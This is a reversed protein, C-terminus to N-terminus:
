AKDAGYRSARVGGYCGKVFSLVLYAEWGRINIDM